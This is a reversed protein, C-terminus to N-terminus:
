KQFLGILNGDPDTFMGVTGVGPIPMPGFVNKGGLAEAKDLYKQVDDVTVYISVYPPYKGDTQFIGGGIGEAGPMVENYGFQDDRKIQWDFLRTYFGVGRKEDRVCIEFHMITNDM